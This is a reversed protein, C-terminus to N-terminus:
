KNYQIIRTMSFLIEVINGAILVSLFIGELKKKFIRLYRLSSM